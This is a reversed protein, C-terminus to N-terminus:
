DDILPVCDITVHTHEHDSIVAEMHTTARQLDAFAKTDGGATVLYIDKYEEMAQGKGAKGHVKNPGIQTITLMTSM